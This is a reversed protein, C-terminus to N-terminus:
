DGYILNNLERYAKDIDDCVEDDRLYIRENWSNDRNGFYYTDGQHTDIVLCRVIVPLFETYKVIHFRKIDSLKITKDGITIFEPKSM